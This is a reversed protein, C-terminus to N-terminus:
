RALASPLADDELMAQHSVAIESLRQERLVAECRNSLEGRHCSRLEALARSQGERHRDHGSSM